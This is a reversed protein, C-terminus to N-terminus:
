LTVFQFMGHEKESFPKSCHKLDAQTLRNIDKKGQCMRMPLIHLLLILNHKTKKDDVLDANQPKMESWLRITYKNFVNSSPRKRFKRDYSTKNKKEDSKLLINLLNSFKSVNIQFNFLLKRFPLTECLLKKFMQWSIRTVVDRFNKGLMGINESQSLLAPCNNM